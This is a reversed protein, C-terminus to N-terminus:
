VFQRLTNIKILVFILSIKLAGKLILKKFLNFKRKKIKRYLRKYSELLCDKLIEIKLPINAQQNYKYIIDTLYKKSFNLHLNKEFDFRTILYSIILEPSATKEISSAQDIVIIERNESVMINHTTYDSLYGIKHNKFQNTYNALWVAAHVILQYNKNDFIAKSLTTGNVFEMIYGDSRLEHVRLARYVYGQIKLSNYNEYIQKMSEFEKSTTEFKSYKKRVFDKNFEIERM